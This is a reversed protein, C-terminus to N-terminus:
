RGILFFLQFNWNNFNLPFISALLGCSARPVCDRQVPGERGTKAELTRDRRRKKQPQVLLLMEQGSNYAIIHGSELSIGGM